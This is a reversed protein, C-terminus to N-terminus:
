EKNAGAAHKIADVLYKLNEDQEIEEKLKQKNEEDVEWQLMNLDFMDDEETFDGPTKTYALQLIASLCQATIAKLASKDDEDLMTKYMKFAIQGIPLHADTWATNEETIAEAIEEM